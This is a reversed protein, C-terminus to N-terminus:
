YRYERCREASAEACVRTTYLAATLDGMVETRMILPVLVDDDSMLVTIPRPADSAEDFGALPESELRVELIPTRGSAFDATRREVLTVKLDYRRRGDFIALTTEAPVADRVERLWDRVSALATLPDMTGDRMAEPVESGRPEGRKFTAVEVVRGAGDYRLRVERTARDTETFSRFDLSAPAGDGARSRATLEGKFGTLREVLGTTAMALRQDRTAGNEAAELEVRGVSMGLFRMEAELRYDTTKAALPGPAAALGALLAIGAVMSRMM